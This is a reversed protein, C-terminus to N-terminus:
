SGDEYERKLISYLKYDRFVGKIYAYERLLGEYQMGIKKMVKESSINKVFCKAEIRNLSLSNFGTQIIKKLAETMIGMNWFEDSLLYAQEAKAHASEYKVFGATGIVKNNNKYEIAWQSVKDSEYKKLVSNIFYKTDEITIHPSWTLCKSVSPKSTFVFLDSADQMKLKRLILRDTEIQPLNRFFNKIM